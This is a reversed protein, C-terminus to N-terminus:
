LTPQVSAATARIIYTSRFTYRAPDPRNADDSALKTLHAITMRVAIAAHAPPRHRRPACRGSGRALPPRQKPARLATRRQLGSSTEEVCRQSLLKHPAVERGPSVMGAAVPVARSVCLEIAESTIQGGFLVVAEISEIPVRAQGDPRSVVLNGKQARVHSRHETVYLTSLIRQM